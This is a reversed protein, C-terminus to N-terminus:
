GVKKKNVISSIKMMEEDSSSYCRHHDKIKGLKYYDLIKEYSYPGYDKDKGKIFWQHDWPTEEPRYNSSSVKNYLSM